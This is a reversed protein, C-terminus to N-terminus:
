VREKIFNLSARRNRGVVAPLGLYKEYERVEPVQLFNSIEAKTKEKVAKSLFINTKEQNLKQGSAEEYLSLIDQVALLDSMTARCFLLSDDAFFLHSIRPGRKCLSFGRIKDNSAAQQLM